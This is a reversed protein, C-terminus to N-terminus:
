RAPPDLVTDEVGVPLQPSFSRLNRALRAAEQPEVAYFNVTASGAVLLDALTWRGVKIWSKPLGGLGEFWEDYVIAIACAREHALRAIEETGYSGSRRARAVDTSALGWLDLMRVDAAYNAAGIDNLAVAEGTYFSKLFLGMQHQQEHINRAARPIDLLSRGGRALFPQCALLGAAALAAWVPLSRRDPRTPRPLWGRLDAMAVAIAALGFCVLYAEYRYFWGFEGFFAHAFTAGIFLACLTVGRSASRRESLGRLALVLSAGALLLLLVRPGGLLRRVGGYGFTGLWDAPSLSRPWHGKLLVPNPLFDHGLATQLLGYLAVPAVGCAGVLWAQGARGRVALISCVILLLFLGEYRTATLLPALAAMRRLAIRPRADDELSRAAADAFALTLLAHLLHEQGGFVLAPLPTFLAVALLAVLRCAPTAGRDRLIRDLWALLFVALALEFALPLRHLPGAAAYAGTLLLTWLPSSTSSSFEYRTVGWADGDAAHRAMAMHIYPDDLIYTFHGATAVLVGAGAGVLALLLVGLATWLPARRDPGM